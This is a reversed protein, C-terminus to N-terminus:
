LVMEETQEKLKHQHIFNIMVASIDTEEREISIKLALEALEVTLLNRRYLNMASQINNWIMEQFLAFIGRKEDDNYALTTIEIDTLSNCDTFAGSYIKVTGPMTIKKLSICGLFADTCISRLSDPLIVEEIWDNCVFAKPCITVIGDPVVAKTQHARLYWHNLVHDKIDAVPVADAKPYIQWKM